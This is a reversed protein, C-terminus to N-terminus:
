HPCTMLLTYGARAKAAIREFMRDENEYLVGVKLVGIDGIVWLERRANSYIAVSASLEKGYCAIGLSEKRLRQVLTEMADICNIDAEFRSVEELVAQTTLRDLNAEQGLLPTQGDVICIFDQSMLLGDGSPKGEGEKASLYHEIIEM